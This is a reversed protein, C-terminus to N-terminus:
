KVVSLRKVLGGKETQIKVNYLGAAFTSVPLDIVNTGAALQKADKTFVVRGTADIVLIQVDSQNELSLVVSTQNTAPNPYLDAMTFGANKEEVSTPWKAEFVASQLVEKTNNDQLFVVLNSAMPHTFFTYSGQKVELGDTWSTYKSSFNFSQAAGSTMSPIATGNGNPMMLRMVHFYDRQSTTAKKNVYEKEVAAVHLSYNGSIDMHSTVAISAKLNEKDVITYSGTIEVPTIGGKCEDIESQDGSGGALGHTYHDPISNVGYYSKRVDGHPNYAADNGPSPWNMQYKIINFNATSKNVNNMQILPDFSVNFAACPPCTSSTFEEIFCPKDKVTGAGIYSVTAANDDTFPDTAGNVQTITVNLDHKGTAVGTLGTSFTLSSAAGVAVNLGSFTQTVPTGGDVSYTAEISTVPTSGANEFAFKVVTGNTAIGDGNFQPVTVSQLAVESAAKNYVRIDDVAFGPLQVKADYYSFALMVSPENDYAALSIYASQWGALQGGLTSVHKWTTGGDTSALVRATEISTGRRANIFFFDFGLTAGTVGTFDMDPTILVSSDNDAATVTWDDVVAYRSHKPLKWGGTGAFNIMGEAIAWGATAPTKTTWDTPLTKGVATTEFNQSLITQAMSQGCIGLLLGTVLTFHKKM